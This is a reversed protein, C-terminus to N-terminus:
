YFFIILYLLLVRLEIRQDGIGKFVLKACDFMKNVIIDIYFIVSVSHELVYLILKNTIIGFQIYRFLLTGSILQHIQKQYLFMVISIEVM